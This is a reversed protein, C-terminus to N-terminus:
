IDEETVPVYREILSEKETKLQKITTESNECLSSLQSHFSLKFISLFYDIDRM